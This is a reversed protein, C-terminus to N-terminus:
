QILPRGLVKPGPNQPITYPYVQAGGEGRSCALSPLVTSYQLPWVAARCYVSGNELTGFSGCVAFM